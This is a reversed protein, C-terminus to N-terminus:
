STAAKALSLPHAGSALKTAAGPCGSEAPGRRLDDRLEFLHVEWGRRALFIGLLSGCLGAGVITIKPLAM